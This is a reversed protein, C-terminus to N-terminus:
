KPFITDKVKEILMRTSDVSVSDKIARAAEQLARQKDVEMKFMEIFGDLMGLKFFIFGAVIILVMFIFGGVVFFLLTQLIISATDIRYVKKLVYAGYIFSSLSVILNLVSSIVPSWLFLIQVISSVMLVQSYLYLHIVIHEVYNYSKYNWFVLLSILALVPVYVFSIVAQYEMVNNLLEKTFDMQFETNGSTNGFAQAKLYTDMFWQRLVFSYFGSLTIAIAFYSFAPIYRKRLGNIYGVIVDEPKKFLGIFTKLFHNEINLFREVFDEFLNRWNLRNYMRKSGCNQCFRQDLLLTHGCNKCTNSIALVQRKKQKKKPQKEQPTIGEEAM